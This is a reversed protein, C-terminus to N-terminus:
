ENASIKELIAIQRKRFVRMEKAAQMDGRIEAVEIGRNYAEVAAENENLDGLARGLLKWAASYQEDLLVAQRLHKVAEQARGAKFYASGLTLRLLANDQGAALIAEFREIVDM